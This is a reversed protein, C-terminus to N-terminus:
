VRGALTGCIEDTAQVKQCESHASDQKNIKRRKKAFPGEGSSITGTGEVDTATQKRKSKRNPPNEDSKVCSDILTGTNEDSKMMKTKTKM